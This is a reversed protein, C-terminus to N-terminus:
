TRRSSTILLLTLLAARELTKPLHIHEHYAHAGDGVAGLGDLTATYRSTTNGDSAGGSIGESLELDLEKATKRALQWLRENRDTKVMPLKEFGGTVSLQLGDVGPDLSSIQEEILRADAETLVRVDVAAHSEAAIVNSREGGSITGVNVTIGKAPNNMAFLQQVINSLGQIASIGEEPALGAHAPKGKLTLEFHGVGKRQTKIKGESGLSPELVFARHACRALRKIRHISDGSGTEEDSNIFIVPTYAPKLDLDRIARLALLIMTLGAKMDYTGPGSVTQGNRHFPMENLTNVPWVTDCHGILLQYGTEPTHKPRAYLQGGSEQGPLLTVAFDLERFAESLLEFVITQTNPVSTPSEAETLRKLFNVFWDEQSVIYAQIAKARETM